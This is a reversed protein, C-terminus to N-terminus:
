LCNTCNYCPPPFHDPVLVNVLVASLFLATAALLCFWKWRREWALVRLNRLLLTGILLGAVAGALHATYGVKTPSTSFHRHYIATGVDLVALVGLILLRVVAFEMEAWNLVVNALHAALLAYVGGSAGGLYVQPDFLSTALSGAIVGSLYILLIRWWGHVMELLFGVLLQVLLNACLHVYGIHVFMYSVFRWVESRRKPNYILISCTDVPGEATVGGLRVAELCFLVMEVISVLVMLFPPPCCSYQKMYEPRRSRPLMVKSINMLLQQLPSVFGMNEAMEADRNVLELFENYSIIQDGNTDASRAIRDIVSQPIRGGSNAATLADRLERVTVVGNGNLDCQDYVQWCNVAM